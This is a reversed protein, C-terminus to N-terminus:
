YTLGKSKIQKLVSLKIVVYMVILLLFLVVLGPIGITYNTILMNIGLQCVAYIVAVVLHNIGIENSLIQFLHKRHAEFIKERGYLRQIITCGTDVLYIAIFALYTYDNTQVIRQVLLYCIIAAISLSGVDGAFCRAKTRANFFLFVLVSLIIFILLQQTVVDQETILLPLLVALSYFGTIGNIGDMFNFANLTGVVYFAALIVLIIPLSTAGTGVLLLATALLHIGFRLSRPLDKIDDLFSVIGLLLVATILYTYEFGSYLGFFFLTIPFLIGGGRITPTIHSSRENPKDIIRYKIAIKFYGLMSIVLVAAVLAIIYIPLNALM